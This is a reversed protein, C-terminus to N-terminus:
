MGNPIFMLVAEGQSNEVAHTLDPRSRSTWARQKNERGRQVVWTPFMGM